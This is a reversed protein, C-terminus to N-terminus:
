HASAWVDQCGYGTCIDLFLSGVNTVCYGSVSDAWRQFMTDLFLTQICINVMSMHTHICVDGCMYRDFVDLCLLIQMFNGFNIFLRLGVCKVHM